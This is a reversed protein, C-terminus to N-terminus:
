SVAVHEPSSTGVLAQGQAVSSLSAQVIEHIQHGVQLPHLHHDFYEASFRRTDEYVHRQGLLEELREPIVAYNWDAAVPDANSTTADLSFYHHDPLLPVPWLTKPHQDLVTCAGLALLDTMRWSMCHHNGLRSINLRSRATVQWLRQLDIRRTTTPIGSLRLRRAQAATDGILLEALLFKKARVKAVAELLRMCHEVGEIGTPGGWVRVVFCLDFVPPLGRMATLQSLHPLVIPNCVYFPRVRPDYEHDKWYNTKLYVDSGDLLAPSNIAGSDHGDICLKKRCSSNLLFSYEGVLSAAPTHQAGMHRAVWDLSHGFPVAGRKFLRRLTSADRVRRLRKLFTPFPTHHSVRLDSGCLRLYQRLGTQYYEQYRDHWLDYPYTNAVVAALQQDTLLTAQTGGM